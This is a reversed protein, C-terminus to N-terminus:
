KVGCSWSSTSPAMGERGGLCPLSKPASSVLPFSLRRWAIFTVIRLGDSLSAPFDFLWPRLSLLSASKNLDPTVSRGPAQRGLDEKSPSFSPLPSSVSGEPDSSSSPNSGTVLYLM